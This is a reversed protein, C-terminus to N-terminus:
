PQSAVLKVIPISSPRDTSAIAEPGLSKSAPTPKRLPSPNRTATAHSVHPLTIPHTSFGLMAQKPRSCSLSTPPSLADTALPRGDSFPAFRTPSDFDAATAQISRQPALRHIDEGLQEAFEQDEDIVAEVPNDNM